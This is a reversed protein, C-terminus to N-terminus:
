DIGLEREIEQFSAEWAKYGEDEISDFYEKQIRLEEESPNYKNLMVEKFLALLSEDDMNLNAVGSWLLYDNWEDVLPYTDCNLNKGTRNDLLLKGLELGANSANILEGWKKFGSLMAIIQQAKMLTVDTEDFWPEERDVELWNVIDGIDEFFKPSYQNQTIFGDFVPQGTKFDKHLNKAQRKFYEIYEM